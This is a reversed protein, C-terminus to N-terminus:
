LEFEECDNSYLYDDIYNKGIFAGCHECINSLYKEKLINSFNEQLIVGKSKVFQIQEESFESPDYFSGGSLLIAVKMKKGCKYCGSNIIQMFSKNRYKDMLNDM